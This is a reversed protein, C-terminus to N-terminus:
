PLSFRRDLQVHIHDMHRTDGYVILRREGSSSMAGLNGYCDDFYDVFDEIDQKSWGKLGIDVARKDRHTSSQRGVRMDEHVSTWAETIRFEIGRAECWENMIICIEQLKGHLDQFREEIKKTKFKM